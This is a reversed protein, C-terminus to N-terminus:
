FYRFEDFDKIRFNEGNCLKRKSFAFVFFFFISFDFNQNKTARNPYRHSSPGNESLGEFERDIRNKNAQDFLILNTFFIFVFIIIELKRQHM